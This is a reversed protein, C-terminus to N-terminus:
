LLHNIDNVLEVTKTNDYLGIINVATNDQKIHWLADRDMMLVSGLISRIVGGHAVVAVNEERHREAIEEFVQCCRCGVDFFSEGGPPAFTAPQSFFQTLQGPYKEEIEVRTLGEWHGCNIERLQNYSTVALGHPQALIQATHMARKLDSAYISAFKVTKLRESLLQAQKIGEESLEIDSFGQFRMAM